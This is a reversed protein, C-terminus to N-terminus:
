VDSPGRRRGGVAMLRSVLAMDVVAHCVLIALPTRFTPWFGFISGKRDGEAEVVALRGQKCETLHLPRLGHTDTVEVPEAPDPCQQGRLAPVAGFVHLEGTEVARAEGGVECGEGSGLRVDNEDSEFPQVM